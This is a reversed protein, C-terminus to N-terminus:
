NGKSQKEKEQAARRREEQVIGKIIGKDAAAEREDPIMLPDSELPYIWRVVTYGVGPPRGGEVTVAAPLPGEKVIGTIIVCPQSAYRALDFTHSSHRHVRLIDKDSTQVDGYKPQNLLGHWNLRDMVQKARSNWGTPVSSGAFSDLPTDGTETLFEQLESAQDPDFNDLDIVEGAEWSQSDGVLTWVFGDVLLPAQNGGGRELRVNDFDRLGKIWFIQVDEIPAPLDHTLKGTLPRSRRDEVRKVVANDAIVPLIWRQPGVMDFQFRQITARAPVIMSQPDSASQVISQSDPFQGIDLETSPVWPSVASIIGEDRLGVEAKGYYPLLIGGFSRVRQTPQGYVQDVITFHRIETTQPRIITAGVWAIASFLLVVVVFAVWSHRTQRRWKLVGFSVPGAFVWYLGFIALALLVGVSAQARKTTVAGAYADVLMRRDGLYEINRIRRSFDSLEQRTITDFRKGLIRHWFRDARLKQGVRYVPNSLDLGIVTVMGAGELRRVVVPGDLGEVLVTVESPTAGPRPVFTHITAQEFEDDIFRESTLLERYPELEVDAVRQASVAPMLERLPHTTTFWDSGTEPVVVVLHGGQRVYDRLAQAKSGETFESAALGGVVVTEFALLGLARDSLDDANLRVAVASGEHAMPMPAEDPETHLEYQDLGMPMPGLVALMSRERRVMESGALNVSIQATAVRSGVRVAEGSEDVTHVTLALLDDAELGWPARFHLWVTVPRNPNLTTTRQILLEDGDPQDLHLRVAVSRPQAAQDTLELKLATWDGPRVLGGVGFSSAQIQIQGLSTPKEPQPPEALLDEGVQGLSTPAALLLALLTSFVMVILSIRRTM